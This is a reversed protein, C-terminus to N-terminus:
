GEKKQYTKKLATKGKASIGYIQHGERNVWGLHHIMFDLCTAITHHDTVQLRNVLEDYHHPKEALAVLIGRSYKGRPYPPDFLGFVTWVLKQFFGIM